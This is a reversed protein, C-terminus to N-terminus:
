FVELAAIAEDTIELNTYVNQVDDLDELIEVLKLVQLAQTSILELTSNPVFILSVEKPNYGAEELASRVGQLEEIATYM